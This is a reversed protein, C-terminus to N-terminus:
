VPPRVKNAPDDIHTVDIRLIVPTATGDLDVTGDAVM